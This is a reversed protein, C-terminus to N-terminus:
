GPASRSRASSLSNSNTVDVEIGDLGPDILYPSPSQRLRPVQGFPFAVGQGFMAKM